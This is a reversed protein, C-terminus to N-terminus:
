SEDGIVNERNMLIVMCECLYVRNELPRIEGLGIINEKLLDPSLFRFKHNLIDEISYIQKSPNTITITAYPHNHHIYDMLYSDMNLFSINLLMFDEILESKIQQLITRDVLTFLELYIKKIKIHNMIEQTLEPFNLNNVNQLEKVREKLPKVQSIYNKKFKMNKLQDKWNSKKISFSPLSVPQQPQEGTIFHQYDFTIFERLQNLDCNIDLSDLEKCVKLIIVNILLPTKETRIWPVLRAAIKQRDIIGTITHLYYYEITRLNLYKYESSENAPDFQTNELTINTEFHNIIKESLQGKFESKLIGLCHSLNMIQDPSIGRM